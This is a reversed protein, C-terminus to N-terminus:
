SFPRSLLPHFPPPTDYKLKHFPDLTLPFLLLLPTKTYPDLTGM